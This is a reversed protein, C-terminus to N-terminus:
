AKADHGRFCNRVAYGYAVGGEPANRRVRDPALINRRTPDPDVGPTSVFFADVNKSCLLSLEPETIVPKPYPQPEPVPLPLCSRSPCVSDKFGGDDCRGKEREQPGRKQSVGNSLYKVDEYLTGDAVLDGEGTKTEPAPATVRRGSKELVRRSEEPSPFGVLPRATLRFDCCFRSM